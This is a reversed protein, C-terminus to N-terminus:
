LGTTVRWQAAVSHRAGTQIMFATLQDIDIPKALFLAHDPLNGDVPANREPYGSMFIPEMDPRIERLLESLRIGDLEPMVIDTLLFDIKGDHEHQKLLADNGNAAALVRMGQKQLITVMIDRLDDEDEVLLVTRNQLAGDLRHDGSLSDSAPEVDECEEALPLYLRIMTGQGLTSRVDIYGGMRRVIGYVVSLGLGTGKGQEKTSFFPEFVREMTDASMGRGSDVVRLCIYSMSRAEEPISSPLSASSSHYAAIAVTGRESPFADRANTVLNILIQSLEDEGGQVFLRNDAEIHLDIAESVLPKLLQKQDQLFCGLDIVHDDVVNHRGFTLLKRTLGAGRQVTKHMRDLCENFKEDDDRVDVLMRTFGDIIMLINNFDHAVGGALQGLAEMKRPQVNHASSLYKVFEEEYFSLDKGSHTKTGSENKNKM